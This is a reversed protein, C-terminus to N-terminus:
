RVDREAAYNELGALLIYRPIKEGSGLNWADRQQM